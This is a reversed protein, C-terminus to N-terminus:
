TFRMSSHPMLPPVGRTVADADAAAASISLSIMDVGLEPGSEIMGRHLICTFSSM